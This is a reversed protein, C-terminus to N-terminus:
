CRVNVLLYLQVRPALSLPPPTPSVTFYNSISALSLLWDFILAGRSYAVIWALNGIVGVLILANRPVEVEVSRRFAAWRVTALRGLLSPGMGEGCIAAMARSAAFVSANAMSYVALILALNIVSALAPLGAIRVAAVFPSVVHLGALEPRSFDRPHLVLGAAFLPLVYCFLIRGLVIM